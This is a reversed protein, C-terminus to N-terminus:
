HLIKMEKCCGCSGVRVFHSQQRDNKGTFKTNNPWTHQNCIFRVSKNGKLVEFQSNGYHLSLFILTSTPSFKITICDALLYNNLNHRAHLVFHHPDCSWRGREICLMLAHLWRDFLPHEHLQIFSQLAGTLSHYIVMVFLTCAFRPDMRDGHIHIRHGLSILWSTRHLVWGFPFDIQQLGQVRLQISGQWM